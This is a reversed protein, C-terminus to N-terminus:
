RSARSARSIKGTSKVLAGLSRSKICIYIYKDEELSAGGEGFLELETLSFRARTVLVKPPIDTLDFKIFAYRITPDPRRYTQYVEAPDYELVLKRSRSYNMERESSTEWGSANEREEYLSSVWADELKPAVTPLSYGYPGSGYYYWTGPCGSRSQIQLPEDLYSILPYRKTSKVGNNLVTIILAASDPVTDLYRRLDDIYIKLVGSQTVMMQEPESYHSLISIGSAESEPREVQQNELEMKEKIIIQGLSQSPILM